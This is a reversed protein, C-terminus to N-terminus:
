AFGIVPMRFLKFIPILIGNGVVGPNVLVADYRSAVVRLALVVFYAYMVLLELRSPDVLSGVLLRSRVLRHREGLGIPARGGSSTFVDLRGPYHRVLNYVYVLSGGVFPPPFDPSIV